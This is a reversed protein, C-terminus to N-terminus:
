LKEIQEKTLGTSQSIIDISVGTNKLSRAINIKEEAKGEAKGKVGAEM